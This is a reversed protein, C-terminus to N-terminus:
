HATPNTSIKNDSHACARDFHWQFTKARHGLHVVCFSQNKNFAAFATKRRHFHQIASMQFHSKVRLATLHQVFPRFHIRMLSHSITRTYNANMRETEKKATTMTTQPTENKENQSHPHFRRQKSSVFLANNLFLWAAFQRHSADFENALVIWHNFFCVWDILKCRWSVDVTTPVSFRQGRGATHSGQDLCHQSRRRCGVVAAVVRFQRCLRCKVRQHFFARSSYRSASGLALAHRRKQRTRQRRRWVGGAGVPVQSRAGHLAACHPPLAHRGRQDSRWRRRM